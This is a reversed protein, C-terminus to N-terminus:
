MASPKFLAYLLMVARMSTVDGHSLCFYSFSYNDYLILYQYIHHRFIFCCSPVTFSLLQHKTSFRLFVGRVLRQTSVQIFYFLHRSFIHLFFEWISLLALVFAGFRCHRQCIWPIASALTASASPAFNSLFIALPSIVYPRIPWFFFKGRIRLSPFSKPLKSTIYPSYSSRVPLQRPHTVALLGTLLKSCCDM